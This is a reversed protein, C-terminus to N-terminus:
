SFSVFMIVFNYCGEMTQQIKHILEKFVPFIFEFSGKFTLLRPYRTYYKLFQSCKRPCTLIGCYVQTMDNYIYPKPQIPRSIKKM